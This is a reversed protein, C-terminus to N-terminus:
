SSVLADLMSWARPAPTTDDMDQRLFDNIQPWLARARDADLNTGSVYAGIEVLERVDRHAALMRRMATADARQERTTVANAVRSVSELVDISPFHGSTALRRDLTIHGDLISRATDAIPENHDDGEVLVTYLGTISGVPAPGARELLRPLLAFVSPPYGRTAPPEGASLGVERQAMATRTLSDMLLLVDQGGDRFYEAIRTAVFGARLRVLPPQDSTAIVVVSRALGEPGLDNEIFERVERGREGVLGIVSIEADTGRTIMSMLSSKGVGSGAFIGIRQGRGCPVLTDLARVGLSLPEQVRGRALADPADHEVTVRELGTLAPGGDMPRGLGDLIRGRLQPGVAIQLPSGTSRVPSGTGVGTLAGLPLCALRDGDISVVEAPVTSGLGGPDGIEVLDGVRGGVGAVTVSLGVISTVRGSVRPNAAQRAAAIRQQLSSTM